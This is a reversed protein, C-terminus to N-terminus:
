NLAREVLGALEQSLIWKGRESLHFGDVAMLGPASYVAGHDFSNKHNCWGRLWTNILHTKRSNETDKGVVSPISSFIVQISVRDVLQGLGRLDKKIINLSREGVEDSSAEVTLLPYYDSPWILSPFKRSIKRVQAGHLCCVDRCTPDPWCICGRLLSDGVVIVGRDNASATKLQPTSRRVTSLRM